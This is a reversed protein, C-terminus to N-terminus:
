PANPDQKSINTARVREVAGLGNVDVVRQKLVPFCRALIGDGEGQSSRAPCPTLPFLGQTLERNMIMIRSKIKIEGNTGAWGEGGSTSPRPSSAGMQERKTSITANLETSGAALFLLM